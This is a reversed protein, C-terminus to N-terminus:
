MSTGRECILGWWKRLFARAIRVGLSRGVRRATAVVAPASDMVTVGAWAATMLTVVAASSFDASVM